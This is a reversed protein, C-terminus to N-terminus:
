EFHVNRKKLCDAGYFTLGLAAEISEDDPEGAEGIYRICDNDVLTQMNNKYEAEAKNSYRNCTLQQLQRYSINPQKLHITHLLFLLLQEDM